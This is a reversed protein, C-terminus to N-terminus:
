SGFQPASGLVGAEGLQALRQWPLRRKAALHQPQCICRSLGGAWSSGLLTATEPAEAQVEEPQGTVPGAGSRLRREM